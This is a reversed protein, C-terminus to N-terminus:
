RSVLYQVSFSLLHRSYLDGTDPERFSNDRPQRVIGLKGSDLGALPVSSLTVSCWAYVNWGVCM